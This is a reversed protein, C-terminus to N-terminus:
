LFSLLPNVNYPRYPSSESFTVKIYFKFSSCSNYMFIDQTLTSGDFLVVFVPVRPPFSFKIHKM